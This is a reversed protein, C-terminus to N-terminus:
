EYGQLEKETWEWVKLGLVDDEGKPTQPGGIGIPEYYEGSKV